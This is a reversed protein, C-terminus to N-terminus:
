DTVPLRAKPLAVQLVRGSATVDTLNIDSSYCISAMLSPTRGLNLFMHPMESDIYASDGASLIVPEYFKTHLAVKGKIIYIFEEGEHSSWNAIDEIRRAKVHMILPIMHKRRLVNTHVLYDYAGTSFGVADKARTVTLRGGLPESSAQNLIAEFSMGLGRAVKVLTDFSAAVQANEIKSLTSLSVDSRRSLEQLTWGKEKRLTKIREGIEAGTLDM